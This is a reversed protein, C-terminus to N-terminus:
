RSLPHCLNEWCHISQPRVLTQPLHGTQLHSLQPTLVPQVSKALSGGPSPAPEPGSEKWM